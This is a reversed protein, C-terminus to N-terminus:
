CRNIIEQKNSNYIVHNDVVIPLVSGPRILVDETRLELMLDLRRSAPLEHLANRIINEILRNRRRYTRSVFDMSPVSIEHGRSLGRLM